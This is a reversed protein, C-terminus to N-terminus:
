KAIGEVELNIEVMEGVALGGAELARNWTLGFDKRNIKTQATFGIRTIGQFDAVVGGFDVDFVVEKTVDKISLDGVMKGDKYSKMVFKMTPYKKVDFFDPDRLHDDRKQNKTDISATKVVGEFANFKQAKLDYEIKGEFEDFYGRTYSVMLHKIKFGVSTHPIDLKFEQAFLSGSLFLSLVLVGLFRRFIM